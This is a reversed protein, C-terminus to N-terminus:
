QNELERITKNISAIIKDFDYLEEQEGFPYEVESGNFCYTVSRLVNCFVM